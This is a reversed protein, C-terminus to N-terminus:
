KMLCCYKGAPSASIQGNILNDDGQLLNQMNMIPILVENESIRNLDNNNVIYNDSNDSLTNTTANLISNIQEAIKEKNVVNNSSISETYNGDKPLKKRVPLQQQQQEQHKLQKELWLAM